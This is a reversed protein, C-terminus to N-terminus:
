SWIKIETRVLLLAAKLEDIAKYEAVSRPHSPEAAIIDLLREASGMIQPAAAFLAAYQRVKPDRGNKDKTGKLPEPLFAIPIETGEEGIRWAGIPYFLSGTFELTLVTDKDQTM